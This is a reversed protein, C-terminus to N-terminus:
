PANGDGCHPSQELSLIHMCGNAISPNGDGCHPYLLFIYKTQNYASFHRYTM